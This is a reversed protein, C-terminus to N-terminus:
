LAESLLKHWRLNEEINKKILGILIRNNSEVERNSQAYYPSSSLLNIKLSEVFEMFEHSMSSAGEDTTLTQAMGIKHVIHEFVFNMVKKHTMNILPVVEAWKTFYDTAVL